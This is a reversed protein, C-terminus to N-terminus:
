KLLSDKEMRKYSMKLYQFNCHTRGSTKEEGSNDQGCYSCYYNNGEVKKKKM